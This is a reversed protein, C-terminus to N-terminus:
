SALREKGVGVFLELTNKKPCNTVHSHRCCTQQCIWYTIPPSLWLAGPLPLYDTLSAGTPSCESTASKLVSTSKSQHFCCVHPPPTEKLCTLCSTSESTRPSLTCSPSLELEEWCNWHAMRGELLSPNNFFLLVCPHITWSLFWPIFPPSSKKRQHSCTILFTKLFFM